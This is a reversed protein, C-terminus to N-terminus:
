FPRPERTKIFARGDSTYTGAPTSSSINLSTAGDSVVFVAPAIIGILSDGFAFSTGYPIAADGVRVFASVRYRHEVEPLGGVLSTKTGTLIVADIRRQWMPLAAGLARLIGADPGADILLTAGSPARVLAANGKGVDLVSVELARPALISRYININTAVLLAICAFLFRNSRFVQM